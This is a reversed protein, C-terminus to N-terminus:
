GVPVEYRTRLPDDKNGDHQYYIFENMPVKLVNLAKQIDEIKAESKNPLVEIYFNEDSNVFRKIYRMFEEDNMEDYFTKYKAKNSGDKDLNNMVNLILTQIENRKNKNGTSAENLISFSENIIDKNIEIDGILNTLLDKNNKYIKTMEFNDVNYLTMIYNKEKTNYIYKKADEVSEFILSADIGLHFDALIYGQGNYSLTYMKIDEEDEENILVLLEITKIFMKEKLLKFYLVSLLNPNVRKLFVAKDKRNRIIESAAPFINEDLNKINGYNAKSYLSEFLDIENEISYLFDDILKTVNIVNSLREYISTMTLKTNIQDKFLPSNLFNHLTFIKNYKVENVSDYFLSVDTVEFYYYIARLIMDNYVNNKDKNMHYYNKNFDDLLNEFNSINKHNKAMINFSIVDNNQHAELVKTIYGINNSSKIELIDGKFELLKIRENHGSDIVVKDIITDNNLNKILIVNTLLFNEKDVTERYDFLFSMENRTILENAENLLDTESEIVNINDSNCEKCNFTEESFETVSSCSNCRIYKHM